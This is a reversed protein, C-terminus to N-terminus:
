DWGELVLKGTTHTTELRRHAERLNAANIRGLTESRTSRLAGEDVLAAAADLLRHQEIMDPTRFMGRTFMFEHAYRLAKNKMLGLDVPARPAVITCLTGFPALMDCAAAFYADLEACSFVLDVAPMGIAQLQPLLDERHDIVHHAGHRLCQERSEPRSATAVVTLGLRRALQLLISGVGGGAGLVLLSRPADVGGLPVRMQEHLAEWATILTLPLAAADAWGVTRPKRGVLREDVLQFQSNSGPRLMEGAYWVADGPRFLECDPGAEVVVGAADYGLVRPTTKGPGARRVRYDVPNVSVAHVAVRLDRGGAVPVPLELDVLCQPDDVPLASTFGVAKM